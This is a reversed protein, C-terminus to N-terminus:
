STLLQKSSWSSQLAALDQLVADLPYPLRLMTGDPIDHESVWDPNAQLLLQEYHPSGYYDNSLLYLRSLGKYYPVPIDTAREPIAMFPVPLFPAGAPTGFIESLNFLAM